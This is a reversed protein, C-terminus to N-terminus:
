ATLSPRASARRQRQGAALLTALLQELQEPTLSADQVAVRIALQREIKCTSIACLRHEQLSAVIAQHLADSLTGAYRLCIVNLTVPLLLELAPQQQVALGFRRALACCRSLQRGLLAAPVAQQYWQALARLSSALQAASDPTAPRRAAVPTGTALSRSFLIATPYPQLGWRYLDFALSDSLEMGGLLPALDPALRALAGLSADLHLWLGEERALTALRGLADVTGNESNGAAGCLFFPHLGAARDAGIAAQLLDCRIRGAGDTAIQRLAATHYGAQEFALAVSGHAMDSCYAVLHHDSCAATRESHERALRLAHLHAQSSTPFYESGAYDNLGTLTRLGLGLAPLDPLASVAASAVPHVNAAHQVLM